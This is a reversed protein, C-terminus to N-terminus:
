FNIFNILVKCLSLMALLEKPILATGLLWKISPLIKKRFNLYLKSITSLDQSYLQIFIYMHASHCTRGLERLLSPFTSESTFTSLRRWQVVLPLALYSVKWATKEEFKWIRWKKLIFVGKHNEHYYYNSPSLILHLFLPVM